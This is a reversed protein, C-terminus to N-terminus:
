DKTCVTGRTSIRKIQVNQATNICLDPHVVPGVGDGGLDKLRSWMGGYLRCGLIVGRLGVFVVM